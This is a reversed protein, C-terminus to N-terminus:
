MDFHKRWAFKDEFKWLKAQLKTMLGILTGNLLAM